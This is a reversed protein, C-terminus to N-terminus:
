NMQIIKTCDKKIKRFQKLDDFDNKYKLSYALIITIFSRFLNFELFPQNQSESLSYGYNGDIIDIHFIAQISNFCYNVKDPLSYDSYDYFNSYMEFFQYDYVKSQLANYENIELNYLPIDRYKKYEYNKFTQCMDHIKKYEDSQKPLCNLDILQAYIMEATTKFLGIEAVHKNCDNSVIKNLCYDMDFFAGEEIDIEEDEEFLDRYNIKVIEENLNFLLTIYNILRCIKIDETSMDKSESYYKNLNLDQVSNCLNYVETFKM